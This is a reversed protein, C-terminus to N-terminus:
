RGSNADRSLNRWRCFWQWDPNEGFFLRGKIRFLVVASRVLCPPVQGRGGDRILWDFYKERKEFGSEQLFEEIIIKIM